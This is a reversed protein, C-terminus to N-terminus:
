HVAMPVAPAGAEAGEGGPAAAIKRGRLPIDKVLLVALFAVVACGLGFWFVDAVSLTFASHIGTVMDNVIPMPIRPQAQHIQAGLDGVGTAQNGGATVAKTAASAINQPVGAKVMETPVRNAFSQSFMTGAIALGVTGGIQRIFTMTSTAVGMRQWSVANQIVVTFVSMTPGIGLGVVLLWSHLPWYSTGLTLNTMLWMGVVEVAMAVILMKKYHGIHSLLMGAGISAGMLGLLLPWMSYGSATASIGEVGQFYRPVFIVAAFMGCSVAFIALNSASITRDKFLDLPIIPQKARSEIFLFVLVIALGIGILGGVPFSLWDYLNGNSDTLGKYTLGLLIPVVGATFVVIGAYDLESAKAKVSHINPLLVSIAALAVLGVPLNVYFVWHWSINDTIFGGLFPGVIFSVGFVAGFLGQYRGREQPTFLDGIIALSIPFLAGAGLGQLARFMILQTMNQSLGSLASGVLFLGIGILLMLKRGYVDGLKGYIPVTITSTLLYATVVWTYLDNGALDTVIVPMATGVITQDLASLFLGLLVALLVIVRQRHSLEVAPHEGHPNVAPQPAAQAM